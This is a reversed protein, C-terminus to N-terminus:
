RIYNWGWEYYSSHLVQSPIWWSGVAFLVTVPSLRHTSGAACARSSCSASSLSSVYGPSAGVDDPCGLSSVRWLVDLDRSLIYCVYVANRYMILSYAFVFM